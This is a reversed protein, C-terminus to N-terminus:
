GFPDKEPETSWEATKDKRARVWEVLAKIDDEHPMIRRRSLRTHIGSVRCHTRLESKSMGLEPAVAEATRFVPTIPENTMGGITVLM